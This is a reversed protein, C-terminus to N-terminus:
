GAAREARRDEEHRGQCRPLRCPDFARSRAAGLARFPDASRNQSRGAVVRDDHRWPNLRDVPAPPVVRDRRRRDGGGRFAGLTAMEADSSLDEFAARTVVDDVALTAVVLQAPALSVVLEEAADAIVQQFAARAVVPEGAAETAVPDVAFSAVVVDTAVGGFVFDDVPAAAVVREAVRGPDRRPEEVIVREIRRRGFAKRGQVALAADVEVEGPGDAVVAYGGEAAPDVFDLPRVELGHDARREGVVDDAGTRALRDVAATAGVRDEALVPIVVEVPAGVAVMEVAAFAGVRGIATGAAVV